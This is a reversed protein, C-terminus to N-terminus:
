FKYNMIVNFNTHKEACLPPIQSTLSYLDGIFHQAKHFLSTVTRKLLNEAVPHTRLQKVVVYRGFTRFM